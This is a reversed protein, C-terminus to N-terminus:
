RLGFYLGIGFALGVTRHPHDQVWQRWDLARDVRTSVESRLQGLSSAIQRRSVEIQRRIEDPDSTPATLEDRRAPRAIIARSNGQAM